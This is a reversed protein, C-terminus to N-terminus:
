KQRQLLLWLPVVVVVVLVVAFCRLWWVVPVPLMPEPQTLVFVINRVVLPQDDRPKDQTTM